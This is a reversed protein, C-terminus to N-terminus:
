TSFFLFSYFVSHAKRGAEQCLLAPLSCVGGWGRGGGGSRSLPREWWSPSLRESLMEFLICSFPPSWFIYLSLFSFVGEWGPQVCILCCGGTGGPTDFILWLSPQVGSWRWGPVLRESALFAYFHSTFQNLQASAGSGVSTCELVPCAPRPSEVGRVRRETEQTSVM